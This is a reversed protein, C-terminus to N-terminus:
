LVCVAPLARFELGAKQALAGEPGGGGLFRGRASPTRRRLEAAVSLAPFIHGGTGGTTVVLRAIAANASM